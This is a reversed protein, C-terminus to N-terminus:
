PGIGQVAVSHQAIQVGNVPLRAYQGTRVSGTSYTRFPKDLDLQFRRVLESRSATDIGPGVQALLERRLRYPNVPSGGRRHLGRASTSARVGMFRHVDCGRIRRRRYPGRMDLNM